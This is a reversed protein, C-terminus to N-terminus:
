FPMSMRALEWAIADDTKEVPVTAQWHRVTSWPITRGAIPATRAPEITIMLGANWDEGADDCRRNEHGFWGWARQSALGACTGALKGDFGHLMGKPLSLQVVCNAPFLIDACVIREHRTVGLDAGALLLRWPRDSAVTYCLAMGRAHLQQRGDLSFRAMLRKDGIHERDPDYPPTVQTFRLGDGQAPASAGDGAQGQMALVMLPAQSGDVPKGESCAMGKCAILVQQVQHPLLDSARPCPAVSGSDLCAGYRRLAPSHLQQRGAARPHFPMTKRRQALGHISRRIRQLSPISAQM